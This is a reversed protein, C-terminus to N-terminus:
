CFGTVLLLRLVVVRGRWLKGGHFEDRADGGPAEAERGRQRDSPAEEMPAPLLRDDNLVRAECWYLFARRTGGDGVRPGNRRRRGERGERRLRGQRRDLLPGQRLGGLRLALVAPEGGGEKYHM